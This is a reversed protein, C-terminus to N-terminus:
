ILVFMLLGNVEHTEVSIRVRRREEELFFIRRRPDSEGTYEILAKRLRVRKDTTNGEKINKPKKDHLAWLRKINCLPLLM